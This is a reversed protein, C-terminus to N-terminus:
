NRWWSIFFIKEQASFSMDVGFIICNRDFGIGYGPYKFKDIDINKTLSVAGFLSNEPTPCITM